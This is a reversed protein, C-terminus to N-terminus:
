VLAYVCCVQCLLLVLNTDEPPCKFQDHFHSTNRKERLLQRVIAWTVPGTPPRPDTAIATDVHVVSGSPHHRTAKLVRGRDETIEVYVGSGCTRQHMAPGKWGIKQCELSCYHVLKCRSCKSTAPEGCQGCTYM